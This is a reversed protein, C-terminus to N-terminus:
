TALVKSVSSPNELIIFVVKTFSQKHDVQTDNSAVKELEEIESNIKTLEEDIVEPNCPESSLLGTKRTPTDKPCKEPNKILKIYEDKECKNEEVYKNMHDDSLVKLKMIENYKAFVKYYNSIDYVPNVYM